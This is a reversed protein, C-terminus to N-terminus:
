KKEQMELDGTGTGTEPGERGGSLVVYYNARMEKRSPCCFCVGFCRAANYLFWALAVIVIWAVAFGAFGILFVRWEPIWFEPELFVDLVKEDETVSLYIAKGVYGLIIVLLIMWFFWKIMRCVRDPNCFYTCDKPGDSM